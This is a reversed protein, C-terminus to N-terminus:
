EAFLEAWEDNDLQERLAFRLDLLEAQLAEVAGAGQELVARLEAETSEHRELEAFLAARSTVLLATSRDLAADIQEAAALAQESGPRGDMLDDVREVLNAHGSFLFAALLILVQHMSRQGSLPARVAASLPTRASASLPTHAAASDHERTM